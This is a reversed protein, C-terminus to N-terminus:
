HRANDPSWVVAARRQGDRQDGRDVKARLTPPVPSPHPRESLDALPVQADCLLAIACPQDVRDTGFYVSETTIALACLLCACCFNM